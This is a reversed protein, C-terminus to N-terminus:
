RVTKVRVRILFENNGHTTEFVKANLLSGKRWKGKSEKFFVPGRECVEPLRGLVTTRRM